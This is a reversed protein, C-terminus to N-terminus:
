VNQRQCMRNKFALRIEQNRFSYIIPNLIPTVVSYLISVARDFYLSYSKTLRIYMFLICTFFLLVVTLHSACTSFAKMRGVSTKIKMIDIIIRFYSTMVLFFNVIITFCNTVFEALINISTDSCALSILPPIDCFIHEMESNCFSLRSILIVETLPCLFGLSFCSGILKITMTSTMISSYHLPHCIALYRDYAMATLLYCECSGLAHFFYTQFLCSRVSIHKNGVLLNALMKPITVATYFIELFSLASIFIYMPSHLRSDVKVLVCITVNGAITLLYVILLCVFLLTGYHYLTPFGMITFESVTNNGLYFM